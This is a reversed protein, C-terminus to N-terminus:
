QSRKKTMKWLNIGWSLTGSQAYYCFKNQKAIAKLRNYFLLFPPSLAPLLWESGQLHHLRLIWDNWLFSCHRHCQQIRWLPVFHAQEPHRCPNTKPIMTMRLWAKGAATMRPHFTLKLGLIEDANRNCLSERNESREGSFSLLLFARGLIVPSSVSERSHCYFFREGSFSMTAYLFPPSLDVGGTKSM